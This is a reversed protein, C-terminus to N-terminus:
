EFDWERSMINQVHKKRILLENNEVIFMARQVRGADTYIKIERKEIDRVISYEKPLQNERRMKRVDSVLENPFSHLGIWQGNLFIKDAM